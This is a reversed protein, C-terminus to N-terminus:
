SKDYESPPTVEGTLSKRVIGPTLEGESPILAKGVCDIGAARLPDEMHPDLEEVGYLQKGTAACERISELPLPSPMGCEFYSANAGVAARAYQYAAGSSVIGIEDTHWEERNLPCAETYELLRKWRKEVATHMGKAMAPVPDYKARNKVYEKKRQEQV